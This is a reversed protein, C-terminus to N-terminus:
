VWLRTDAALDAPYSFECSAKDISEGAERLFGQDDSMRFVAPVHDHEVVDVFDKVVPAAFWQALRSDPALSFQSEVCGRLPSCAVLALIPLVARLRLVRYGSV